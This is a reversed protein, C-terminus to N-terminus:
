QSSLDPHICSADKFKLPAEQGVGKTCICNHKEAEKQANSNGTDIEYMPRSMEAEVLLLIGTGGSMSALCYNASKSSCDAM